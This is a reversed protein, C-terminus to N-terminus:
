IYKLNTWKCFDTPLTLYKISVAKSKFTKFNWKNLSDKLWQSFNFIWHNTFAYMKNIRKWFRSCHLTYQIYFYKLVLLKIIFYYNNLLINFYIIYKSTLLLTNFQEFSSLVSWLVITEYIITSIFFIKAPKKQFLISYLFSQLLSM